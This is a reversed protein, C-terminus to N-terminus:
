SLHPASRPTVRVLVDRSESGQSAWSEDGPHLRIQAASALAAQWREGFEVGGGLPRVGVLHGQDDFVEAALLKGDRLLLNPNSPNTPTLFKM